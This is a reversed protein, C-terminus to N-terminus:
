IQSDDQSIQIPNVLILIKEKKEKKNKMFTWVEWFWDHDQIYWFLLQHTIQTDITKSLQILYGLTDACFSAKEKQNIISWLFFWFWM